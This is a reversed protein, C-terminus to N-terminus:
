VRQATLCSNSGRRTSRGLPTLPVGVMAIFVSMLLLSIPEPISAAFTLNDVEFYENGTGGDTSFRLQNFARDSIFGLFGDGDGSLFDGFFISLEAIELTAGDLTNTTFWDAGLAHVPVPLQWTIPDYGNTGDRNVTGNYRGDRVLNRADGDPNDGQSVVGSDFTIRDASAIATPFKESITQARKDLAQEWANRDTYTLTVAFSTAAGGFAAIILFFYKIVSVPSM